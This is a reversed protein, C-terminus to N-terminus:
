SIEELVDRLRTHTDRYHTVATEIEARAAPLDALDCELASIVADPDFETIPAQRADLRLDRLIFSTKPLYAVAFTPRSAMMAFICSHFRTGLFLTSRSILARLLDPERSTRDILVPVTCAAAVREAMSLDDSVQNFIVSRLGHHLSMHQIVRALGQVYADQAALVNLSKPFTWDVVTLGLVQEVEPDVGIESWAAQSAATDESVDTNWFASDGSRRLLQKPLNLTNRLFDWSYSERACVADSWSLVARAIRRAFAADIPGISQPALIVRTGRRWIHFLAVYYAFNTDHIYGGPASIVIDASRIMRWSEQQSLPLSRVIWGLSPILALSALIMRGLTVLKAIAGRQGTNGIRESFRVNPHAARAKDLEEFVACGIQAGPVANMVDAICEDLLVSDGRNSRGYANVIMIKM